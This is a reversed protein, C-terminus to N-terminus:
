LKKVQCDMCVGGGSYEGWINLSLHHEAVTENYYCADAHNFCNCESVFLFPLYLFASACWHIDEELVPSTACVGTVAMCPDLHM